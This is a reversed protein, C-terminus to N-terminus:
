NDAGTKPLLSIEIRRNKARGSETANDAIPNYEGLGAVRLRQPAINSDKILFQVASSARAASLEWNSTYRSRASTPVNDSHGEVQILRDDYQKLLDAVNRLGAKASDLLRASGSAFLVDDQLRIVNDARAVTQAPESESPQQGLLKDLKAQLANFAEREADREARLEALRAELARAQESSSALEERAASLQSRYTQSDQQSSEVQAVLEALQQRGRSDSERAADREATLTEITQESATTQQNLESELAAVRQQNNAIQQEAEGALAKAQDHQAVIKKVEAKSDNVATQLSATKENAEGLQSQLSSITKKNDAQTSELDRLQRQLNRNEQKQEVLEESTARMEDLTQQNKFYLIWGAASATLLLLIIVTPLAIGRQTHM